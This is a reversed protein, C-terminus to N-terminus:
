SAIYIIKYMKNKIKDAYIDFKICQLQGIMTSAKLM